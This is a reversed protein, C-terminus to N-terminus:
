RELQPSVSFIQYLDPILRVNIGHEQCGAIFEQLEESQGVALTLIVDDVRKAALQRLLSDTGEYLTEQRGADDTERRPTLM